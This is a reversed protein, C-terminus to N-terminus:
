WSGGFNKYLLVVSTSLEDSHWYPMDGKAYVNTLQLYEEQQEKTKKSEEKNKEQLFSGGVFFEIKNPKKFFQPKNANKRGSIIKPLQKNIDLLQKKKSGNYTHDAIRNLIVDDFEDNKEQYNSFRRLQRLSNSLDQISKIELNSSVPESKQLSSIKINRSKIQEAYPIHIPLAEIKSTTSIFIQFIIFIIKSIM